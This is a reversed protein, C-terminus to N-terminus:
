AYNYGDMQYLESKDVIVPNLIIFRYTKSGTKSISKSVLLAKNAGDDDLTIGSLSYNRFFLDTITKVKPAVNENAFKKVFAEHQGEVLIELEKQEENKRARASRAKREADLQELKKLNEFYKQEELQTILTDFDKEAKEAYALVGDIIEKQKEDTLKVRVPDAYKKHGDTGKSQYNFTYIQGIKM